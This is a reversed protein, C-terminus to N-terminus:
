RVMVGPIEPTGLVAVASGEPPGLYRDILATVQADRARASQGGLVVVIVRKGRRTATATLNSGSDNIYGTKIGDVGPVKGLLKNTASYTKGRYRYESLKYLYHYQPFRSFLARGLTAMDRATSVNRPDPLGSPTTFRTRSMGLSIAKATMANAFAAESGGLNEAVVTAVDNASRVALATVALSVPITEGPVVGLKSPPKSAANPSVRLQTDMSLRGKEIAEFVLYLTMMKTLSAPYRLADAQDEYLTRGSAYDMVFASAGRREAEGLDISVQRVGGYPLLGASSLETSQCAALSLALLALVATRLTM